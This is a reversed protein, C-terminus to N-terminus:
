LGNAEQYLVAIEEDFYPQFFMLLDDEKLKLNNIAKEAQNLLKNFKTKM